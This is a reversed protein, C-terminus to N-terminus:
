PARRDALDPISEHHDRHSTCKAQAVGFCRKWISEYRLSQGEHLGDEHKVVVVNVFVDIFSHLEKILLRRQVERNLTHKGHQANLVRM